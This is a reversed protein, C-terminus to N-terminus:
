LRGVVFGAAYLCILMTILQADSSSFKQMFSPQPAGWGRALLAQSYATSLRGVARLMATGMGRLWILPKRRLPLGRLRLRQRALASYDMLIPISGLMLRLMTSFRWAFGIHIRACLFHIGSQLDSIKTSFMLLDTAIIAALVRLVFFGAIVAGPANWSVRLALTEPLVTVVEGASLHARSVYSILFIWFFARLEKAVSLIGPRNVLAFVLLLCFLAILITGSSLTVLINLFLYAMFKCDPRCRHLLGRGQHYHFSLVM